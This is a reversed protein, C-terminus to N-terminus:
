GSWHNKKDAILPNQAPEKLIKEIEAMKRRLQEKDQESQKEKALLVEMNCELQDIKKKLEFIKSERNQMQTQADMRVLEVQSEFGKAMQRTSALEQKLIDIRKEPSHDNQLFDKTSSNDQEKKLEEAYDGSQLEKKSLENEKTDTTDFKLEDTSDADIDEMLDFSTGEDNEENSTDEEKAELEESPGRELDFEEGEETKEEDEEASVADFKLGDTEEKEEGDTKEKIETIVSVDDKFELKIEGSGEEGVKQKDAEIKPIESIDDRLVSEETKMDVVATVEDMLESEETQVDVVTDEDKSELVVEEQDEKSEDTQIDVVGTAEDKLELAIEEQDEKPEDTEIDVVGTAEDESELVVEERIRKRNMQRM